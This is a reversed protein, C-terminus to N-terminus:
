SEFPDGNDMFAPEEEITSMPFEDDEDGSIDAVRSKKRGKKAAKRGATLDREASM